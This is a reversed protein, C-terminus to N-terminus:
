NKPPLDINSKIPIFRVDSNTPHYVYPGVDIDHSSGAFFERSIKNSGQLRGAFDNDIYVNTEGASLSRDISIASRYMLIIVFAEEISASRSSSDEVKIFFQCISHNSGKLPIGSITGNSLLRLGSPLKGSLSFHYPLTGGVVKVQWDYYDGEFAIPSQTDVFTMPEQASAATFNLCAFLTSLLAFLISKQTAQYVLLRRHLAM